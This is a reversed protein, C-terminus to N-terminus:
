CNCENRDIYTKNGNSNYYFCGGKLGKYLTQGSTHKGCQKYTEESNTDPTTESKNCAFLCIVIILIYRYRKMRGFYM